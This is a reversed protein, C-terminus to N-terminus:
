SAKKDTLSNQNKAKKINEQPQNEGQRYNSLTIVTQLVKTLEKELSYLQQDVFDDAQNHIKEAEMLANELIKRAQKEANERMKEIERETQSRKEECDQFIKRRVQSAKFQEQQVLLSEDLRQAADRQAKNVLNTAYEQAEKIIYDREEVIEVAQRICDPLNRRIEDLQENLEREDIIVKRTFPINIKQYLLNDLEMIANNIPYSMKDIFPEISETNRPELHENNIPPKYQTM